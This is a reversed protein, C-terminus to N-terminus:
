LRRIAKNQLAWYEDMNKIAANAAFEPNPNFIEKIM